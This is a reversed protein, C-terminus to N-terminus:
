ENGLFWKIIKSKSTNLRLLVTYLAMIAFIFSSVLNFIPIFWVAVIEDKIENLNRNVKISFLSIFRSIFVSVIYLLIIIVFTKM